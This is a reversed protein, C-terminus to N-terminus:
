LFVNPLLEKMIKLYLFLGVLYQGRQFVPQTGFLFFLYYLGGDLHTMIVVLLVLYNGDLKYRFHSGIQGM